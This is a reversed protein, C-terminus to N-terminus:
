PSQRAWITPLSRRRPITSLNSATLAPLRGMDVCSAPTWDVQFIVDNFDRDGGTTLIDEFSLIASSSTSNMMISQQLGSVNLYDDSFLMPTQSAYPRMAGTSPNWGNPIIGFAIGVKNPFTFTNSSCLNYKLQVQYGPKLRGNPTSSAKKVNTFLLTKNILNTPTSAGEDALIESRTVERFAGRGTDYIVPRFTSDNVGTVIPYCFYFLTNYYGANENLFTVYVNAGAFGCDSSSIVLNKSVGAICKNHNFGAFQGKHLQELVGVARRDVLERLHAENLWPHVVSKVVVEKNEINSSAHQLAVIGAQFFDIDFVLGMAPSQRKTQGKNFKDFIIDLEDANKGLSIATSVIAHADMDGGCSLGAHSSWLLITEIPWNQLAAHALRRRVFEKRTPTPRKLIGTLCARMMEDSKDPHHTCFHMVRTWLEEEEEQPKATNPNPPNRPNPPNESMSVNQNEFLHRLSSFDRNHIAWSLAVWNPGAHHDGNHALLRVMDPKAAQTAMVEYARWTPDGKRVPPDMALIRPAFINWTRPWFAYRNWANLFGACDGRAAHGALRERICYNDALAVVATVTVAATTSVALTSAFSSRSLRFWARM